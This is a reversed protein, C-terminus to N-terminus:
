TLGDAKVCNRGGNKAKYLQIDAQEILEFGTWSEKLSAIGFSATVSGIKKDSNRVKLTMGALDSKLRVMLNHATIVDTAPLIIAFEEGGYRAVMDRGKLSTKLVKAFYKLVQDGVAHGFTDNVRKFHDIDLICLSLPHGGKRALTVENQLRLDFARRNAVGTLPDRLNERRLLELQQNLNAMQERSKQLGVTLEQTAQAMQHNEEVLEAITDYLNDPLLKESDESSVSSLHMSYRESKVMANQVTDLASKLEDGIQSRLDVSKQSEGPALYEDYLQDIETETIAEEKGLLTSMEKQVLAYDGSVFAYWLAYTKPYPPTKHERILDYVKEGTEFVHANEQEAEEFRPETKIM